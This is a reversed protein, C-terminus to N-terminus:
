DLSYSLRQASMQHQQPYSAEAVMTMYPSWCWTQKNPTVIFLEVVAISTRRAEMGIYLEESIESLNAINPSKNVM